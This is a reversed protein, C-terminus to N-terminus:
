CFRRTEGSGDVNEVCRGCLEPHQQNAGIDARHHWCRVCKEYESARAAIWLEGNELDAQTAETSKAALTDIEILRIM